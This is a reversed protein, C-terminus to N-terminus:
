MAWNVPSRSCVHATAKESGPSGRAKLFCVQARVEQSTGGRAVESHQTEGARGGMCSRVVYMKPLGSLYKLTQPNNKGRLKGSFPLNHSSGSIFVPTKIPRTAKTYNGSTLFLVQSVYGTTM